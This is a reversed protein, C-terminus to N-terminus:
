ASHATKSGLLSPPRLSPTHHRRQGLRHAALQACTVACVAAFSPEVLALAQDLGRPADSWLALAFRTGAFLGFWGLVGSAWADAGGTTEDGMFALLSLLCLVTFLYWCVAPLWSQWEFGLALLSPSSTAFAWSLCACVGVAVGARAVRSARHWARLLLAAPLLWVGAALLADLARAGLALRVTAV